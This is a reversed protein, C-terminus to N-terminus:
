GVRFLLVGTDGYRYDALRSFGEPDAPPRTAAHEVAVVAREGLCGRGLLEGLLLPLQQVVRYPPDAFVLDFPAEDRRAIRAAATGPSALLDLRVVRARGQLGLSRASRTTTRVVAPDSDVLLAREAGRSLAEFGLAGTGAFLDLVRAGEIAGRAQLASALGERVREPTPRTLNGPPGEFRRGGLRGGVVRM